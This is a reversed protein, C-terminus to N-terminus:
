PTPPLASRSVARRFAATRTPSTRRASTPRRARRGLRVHGGRARDFAVRDGDRVGLVGLHRENGREDGDRHDGPRRRRRRNHLFARRARDRRDHSGPVRPVDPGAAPRHVDSDPLVRRLLETNPASQLTGAINTNAGAKVASTLNPSEQDNNGENLLIGKGGNDHISNASIRNGNGNGVEIGDGTNNAIVNDPGVLNDISSDFRIGDGNPLSATGNRNTGVYNGAITISTSNVAVLIGTDSNGGIVNAAGPSTSGIQADTMGDLEVGIGNPIVATEAANTGISNGVVRNGDGANDLQVGRASGSIVNGAGGM